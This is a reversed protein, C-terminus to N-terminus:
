LGSLPNPIPTWLDHVPDEALRMATTAKVPLTARHLARRDSVNDAEEIYEDVLHWLTHPDEELREALETLVTSFLSALPKARLEEEDDTVISGQLRPVDFGARSLRGPHIKIGGVDRYAAEAPRGYALRVLLNQGHAELGVGRHLMTLVAPVLLGALDRWFAVAHGGYGLEIAQNRIDPDQQTLAAVPTWIDGPGPLPARRLIMALMPHPLGSDDLVAGAAVEPLIRLGTGAAVRTLLDTAAPGNNVAAGSVQRVASTMQVGLATKYHRSPDTTSALTRLSMLPAATVTDRSRKLGHQKLLDARHEAQWPHAVLRPPLGAGTTYWRNRPVEWIQLTVDTHHEPAYRTVEGASMGTRTRCCPHSPHGDVVSQETRALGHPHGQLEALSLPQRAQRARDLNAVSDALEAALQTTDVPLKLAKLLEAPDAYATQELQIRLDPPEVAFPALEPGIMMRGDALKVLIDGGVVQRQGVGPLPERRLALWLRKLVAERSGTM